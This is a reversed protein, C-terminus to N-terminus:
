VSGRKKRRNNNRRKNRAHAAAAAAEAQAEQRAWAAAEAERMARVEAMSPLPPLSTLSSSRRTPPRSWYPPPPPPPPPPAMGPLFPYEDVSLRRDGRGGGRGEVRSLTKSAPITKGLWELWPLSGRRSTSPSVAWDTAEAAM